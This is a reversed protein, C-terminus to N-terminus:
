CGSSLYLITFLQLSSMSELDVYTNAKGNIKGLGCGAIM